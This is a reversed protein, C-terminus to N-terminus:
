GEFAGNAADKKNKAAVAIKKVLNKKGFGSKSTKKMPYLSAKAEALKKGNM